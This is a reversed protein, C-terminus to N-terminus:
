FKKHYKQNDPPLFLNQVEMKEESSHKFTNGKKDIEAIFKQLINEKCSCTASLHYVEEMFLFDVRLITNVIYFLLFYYYIDQTNLSLKKWSNQLFFSITAVPM